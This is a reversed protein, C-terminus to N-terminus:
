SGYLSHKFYFFKMNLINLIFLFFKLLLAKLNTQFATPKKTMISLSLCIEYELDVNLISYNEMLSYNDM